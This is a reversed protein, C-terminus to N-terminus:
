MNIIVFTDYGLSKNLNVSHLGSLICRKDELTLSDLNIIQADSQMSANYNQLYKHPQTNTIIKQLVSNPNNYGAAEFEFNIQDFVNPHTHCLTNKYFFEIFSLNNINLTCARKVINNTINFSIFHDPKNKLSSLLLNNSNLKSHSLAYNTKICAHPNHVIYPNTVFSSINDCYEVARVGLTNTVFNNPNKTKNFGIFSLCGEKIFPNSYGGRHPKDLHPTNNAEQFSFVDYREASEVYYIDSTPTAQLNAVNFTKDAGIVWGNRSLYIYRIIFHFYTSM